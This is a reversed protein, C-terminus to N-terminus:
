RNPSRTDTQSSLDLRIGVPPPPPSYPLIWVHGIRRVVGRSDKVGARIARALAKPHELVGRAEEEVVPGEGLLELPETM